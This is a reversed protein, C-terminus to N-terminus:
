AFELSAPDALVDHWSRGDERPLDLSVAFGSQEFNARNFARVLGRVNERAAKLQDLTIRKEWLAIMIEQCIDERGEVGRPVIANVALLDAHEDRQKVIYPYALLPTKVIIKKPEPVYLGKNWLNKPDNFIADIKAKQEKIRERYTPQPPIDLGRKRDMNDLMLSRRLRITEQSQPTYVYDPDGMSRPM